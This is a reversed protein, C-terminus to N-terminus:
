SFFSGHDNIPNLVHVPQVRFNIYFAFTTRFSVRFNNFKSRRLRMHLVQVGAYIKILNISVKEILAGSGSIRWGGVM